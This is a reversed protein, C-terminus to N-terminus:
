SCVRVMAPRTLCKICRELSETYIAIRRLAVSMGPLGRGTRRLRWRLCVWPPRAQRKAQQPLDCNAIGQEQGSPQGKAEPEHPKLVRQQPHLSRVSRRM